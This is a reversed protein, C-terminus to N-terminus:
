GIIMDVLSIEDSSYFEQPCAPSPYSPTKVSGM